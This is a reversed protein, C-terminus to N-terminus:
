TDISHGVFSPATYQVPIESASGSEAGWASAQIGAGVLLVMAAAAVTRMMISRDLSLTKHMDTDRGSYSSPEDPSPCKTQEPQRTYHIEWKRSASRMYQTAGNTRQPGTACM